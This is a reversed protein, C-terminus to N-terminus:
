NIKYSILPLERQYTLVMIANKPISIVTRPADGIMNEEEQDNTINSSANHFWITDRVHQLSLTSGLPQGNCAIEIESECSLGLKNALYKKVYSVPVKADKVRLYGRPIQPLQFDTSRSHNNSAQLLFWLGTQSPCNTLELNESSIANYAPPREAHPVYNSGGPPAYRPQTSDTPLKSSTRYRKITYIPDPSSAPPGVVTSPVLANGLTPRFLDKHSWASVQNDQTAHNAHQLTALELDELSYQFPSNGVPVMNGPIASQFRINPGFKRALQLWEQSVIQKQIRGTSCHGSEETATVALKDSQCAFSGTMKQHSHHFNQSRWSLSQNEHPIMPVSEGRNNMTRRSQPHESYSQSQDIRGDSVPLQYVQQLANSRVFGINEDCGGPQLFSSLSSLRSRQSYRDGILHIYARPPETTISAPERQSPVSSYSIPRHQAKSTQKAGTLFDLCRDGEGHGISEDTARTSMRKHKLESILFSTHPLFNGDAESGSGAVGGSWDMASFALLDKHVHSHGTQFPSLTQLEQDKGLNVNDCQLMASRSTNISKTMNSKHGLGPGLQLWSKNDSGLMCSERDVSAMLESTQPKRNRLLKCDEKRNSHEKLGSNPKERTSSISQDGNKDAHGENDKIKIPYNLDSVMNQTEEFQRLGTTSASEAATTVSDLALTCADEFCSSKSSEAMYHEATLDSDGCGEPSVKARLELWRGHIKESTREAKGTANNEILSRLKTQRRYTSTPSLNDGVNVSGVPNMDEHKRKSEFCAGSSIAPCTTSGSIDAKDGSSEGTFHITGAACPRKEVRDLLLGAISSLNPLQASYFQGERSDHVQQRIRLDDM